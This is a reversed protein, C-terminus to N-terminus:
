VSDRISGFGVAGADTDAEGAAARCGRAREGSAGVEACLELGAIVRTVGAVVGAVVGEAALVESSGLAADTARM